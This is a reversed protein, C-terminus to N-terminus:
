PCTLKFTLHIVPAPGPAVPAASFLQWNRNFVPWPSFTRTAPLSALAIDGTEANRLTWTGGPSSSTVALEMVRLANSIYQSFLNIEVFWHQTGTILRQTAEFEFEWPDGAMFGRLDVKLPATTYDREELKRVAHLELTSRGSGLMIVMSGALNPLPRDIRHGDEFQQVLTLSTGPPNKYADYTVTTTEDACGETPMASFGYLRPKTVELGKKRTYDTSFNALRGHETLQSLVDRWKFLAGGPLPSFHKEIDRILRNNRQGWHLIINRKGSEEELREILDASGSARSLAAIEIACTRTWRQMALFAPSTTMFRMSIYGGFAKGDEALDRVADLTWDIFSILGPSSADIFFEISDGPAICGVNTYNHQDMIAYSVAKHVPKNPDPHEGDSAKMYLLQVISTAGLTNLVSAAIDGFKAQAPLVALIGTLVVIWYTTFVITAEAINMAAAAAAAAFPGAFPGLIAGAGAAFAYAKLADDRIDSLDDIARNIERRIINDTGCPNSFYGTDDEKGIMVGKGAMAGARERTGYYYVQGSPDTKEADKLPWTNRTIIWSRYDHGKLGLLLGTALGAPGAFVGLAFMLAATTWSFEPKPYVDVDVRVFRNMFVSAFKPHSPTCLWKRVDAWNENECLEDLAYQRITSLVVSYIVGMRGCSVLAANLMDDSRKYIIERVREAGGRKGAGIAYVDALKAPDVLQLPISPSINQREIWYEQGDPAILHLAIVLDSIAGLGVDGGHTATSAVGVITQGGAGGMTPLAWPGFYSRVPPTSTIETSVQYAMSEHVGHENDGDIYSYLEHIRIGAEVHFLYLKTTDVLLTPDFVPVNQSYFFFRRAEDTLCKPIVDYLVRNLRPKTQDSGPEHVPTATEIMDGPTVAAESMAWHSGTARMEAVPGKTKHVNKVCWLLDDFSGPPSTPAGPYWREIPQKDPPVIHMDGDVKRVWQRNDHRVNVM